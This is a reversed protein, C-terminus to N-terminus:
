ARLVRARCELARAASPDGLASLCYGLNNVSDLTAWHQAGLVREHDELARRFLPLAASADGLSQMCYALNNVCALTDPHKAGLVRECGELARRFLPLAAAADGSSEVFCGAVNLLAVLDASYEGPAFRETLAQQHPLLLRCWPWVAPERHGHPIATAALRAVAGNRVTLDEGRGALRWRVVAQVLRHVSVTSVVDTEPGATVLSVATLVAVAAEREEERMASDLLM